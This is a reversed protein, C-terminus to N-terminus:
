RGPKECFLEPLWLDSMEDGDVDLIVVVTHVESSSFVENSIAAKVRISAL